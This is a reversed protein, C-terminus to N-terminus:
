KSKKRCAGEAIKFKITSSIDHTAVPTGNILTPRYSYILANQKAAKEFLGKPKGELVTVENVKGKTNISFIIPVQGEICNRMAKRPYPALPARSSIPQDNLSRYKLVDDEWTRPLRADIEDLWAQHTTSNKIILYQRLAYRWKKDNGILHYLEQLQDYIEFGVPTKSVWAWDTAKEFDKIATETDGLAHNATGRLTYAEFWYDGLAPFPSTYQDDLWSTIMSAADKYRGLRNYIRALLLKSLNNVHVSNKAKILGQRVSNIALENNNMHYHILGMYYHGWVKEGVKTEKSELLKEIIGIAQIPHNENWKEFASAFAKEATNKSNWM